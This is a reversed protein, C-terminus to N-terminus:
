RTWGSQGAGSPTRRGAPRPWLTGDPRACGARGSERSTVLMVVGQVLSRDAFRCLLQQLTM